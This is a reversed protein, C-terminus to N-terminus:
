DQVQCVFCVQYASGLSAALNMYYSSNSLTEFYNDTLVVDYLFSLRNGPGDTFNTSLYDAELLIDEAQFM